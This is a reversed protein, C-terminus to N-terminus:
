NFTAIEALELVILYLILGCAAGIVCVIGGYRARERTQWVFYWGFASGISALLLGAQIMMNEHPGPRVNSVQLAAKLTLTLGAAVGPSAFILVWGIVKRRREDGM